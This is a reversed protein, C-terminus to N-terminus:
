VRSLLSTTYLATATAPTRREVRAQQGLQARVAPQSVARVVHLTHEGHPAPMGLVRAQTHGAQTLDGACAPGVEEVLIVM